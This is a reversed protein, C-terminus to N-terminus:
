DSGVLIREVVLHELEVVQGLVEVLGFIDGRLMRVLDALHALQEDLFRLLILDERQIRRHAGPDCRRV